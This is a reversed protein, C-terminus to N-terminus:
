ARPLVANISRPRWNALEDQLEKSKVAEAIFQIDGKFSM